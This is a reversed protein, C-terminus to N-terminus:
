SSANREMMAFAGNAGLVTSRRGHLQPKARLTEEADAADDGVDADVHRM